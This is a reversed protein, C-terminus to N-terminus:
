PIADHAEAPAGLQNTPGRTAAFWRNIREAVKDGLTLGLKSRRWLVDEACRAWEHARLHELEAEYLQPAIQEGLSAETRASAMAQEIRTGYARCMRRIMAPEAFAYRRLQEATFGELDM